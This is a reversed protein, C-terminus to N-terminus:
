PSAARTAAYLTKNNTPDMVLATGGADPGADLVRTWNVGGDTSKYIGREGGSTWLDGLAAVYVIDHDIPDIIIRAVQKSNRLGMNTWHVGDDTSKYVCDGWSSSQRNNNEGTGVWVLNPDDAPITVAGISRFHLRDFPGGPPASDSPSVAAPKTTALAPRPAIQASLAPVVGLTLLTALTALRAHVAIVLLRRLREVRTPDPASSTTARGNM